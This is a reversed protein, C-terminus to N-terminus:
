AVREALFRIPQFFGGVPNADQLESGVDRAIEQLTAAFPLEILVDQRDRRLMSGGRSAVAADLGASTRLSFLNVDFQPTNKLPPGIVYAALSAPRKPAEICPLRAFVKPSSSGALADWWREGSAAAVVAVDNGLAAREIAAAATPCNVIEVSFGFYFRVLDRMALVDDAPGCAISFPAQMATFTTIIERWIHEVTTVPLGGSHRMVLRRMMDAERDPRFAAGPKSTGKVEILEAIVGSRDILLRHVAEDIADIRDRIAKLPDPAPKDM